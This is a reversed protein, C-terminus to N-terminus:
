RQTRALVGLLQNLGSSENEYMRQATGIQQTVGREKRMREEEERRRKAEREEAERQARQQMLQTFLGAVSLLGASALPSATFGTETTTAGSSGGEAPIAM